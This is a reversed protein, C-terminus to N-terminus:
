KIVIKKVTKNGTSNQNIQLLYVGASVDSINITGSTTFSNSKIVVGTMSVLQTDFSESNGVKINIVSDTPNPYVSLAINEFNGVGVTSENIAMDADSIDYFTSAARFGGDVHCQILIRAQTSNENPVTINQSGDNDVNENLVQFTQGGDLTALIDVKPCHADTGNVSWTVEQTSGGDVTGGTNPTLIEFPGTNEVTVKMKDNAVRGFTENNDRVTLSFNITRTTCPLKEWQQDNNGAMVDSWVPFSRFNNSSPERYRFLAATKSQCSPSGSTALGNGDHQQWGYTLQGSDDNADSGSGVLIFPTQKPIKIDAKADAVPDSSNGASVSTSCSTNNIVAMMQEISSYHFFPDSYSQYRAAEDCVGAYSMLSSGEGPEYRYGDASTGCEESTFNHNSGFQHGIEHAAYDVWLTTESSDSGSFGGGKADPACVAGLYAIGGTNAWMVLHGLDYNASGVANDITAHVIDLFDDAQTDNFPDTEPNEFILSNDTVLTFSVGVDRLYIPRIMNIGSAIANLVNTVNYPSGGFQQSFEGAATIAIRFDKKATIGAPSFARHAKDHSHDHDKSSCKIPKANSAKKFYVIHSGTDSVPEIFYTNEPAYIAAHFGLEDIDCAILVSPDGIKHGTFTKITYLHAVEDAVINSPSIEFEEFERNPNPLSIIQKEAKMKAYFDPLSIQTAVSAKAIRTAIRRNSSEKKIEWDASTIQAQASQTFFTACLGMVILHPKISKSFTTFTIM